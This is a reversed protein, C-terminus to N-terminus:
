GESSRFPSRRDVFEPTPRTSPRYPNGRLTFESSGRDLPHDRAEIFWLGCDALVAHFDDLCRANVSYRQPNGRSRHFPEVGCRPCFWYKATMSGFQYLSLRDEGSLIVLEDNEVPTHVLGKKSCISCNCDILVEIPKERRVEFTIEGCHCSGRYVNM